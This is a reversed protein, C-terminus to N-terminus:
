APKPARPTRHGHRRLGWRRAYLVAALGSPIHQEGWYILGYAVAFPLLALVGALLADTRLSRRLAAAIGLLVLGAVCFRIGAGLLPPTEELGFKIAVWTSSWIVVLLAYSSWIAGRRM